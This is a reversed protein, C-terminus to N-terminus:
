SNYTEMMQQQQQKKTLHKSPNRFHGLVVLDLPYSETVDPFLSLESAKIIKFEWKRESYFIGHIYGYSRCAIVEGLVKVIYYYLCIYEGKHIELSSFFYKGEDSKTFKYIM